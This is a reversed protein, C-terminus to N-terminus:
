REGNGNGDGDGDGDWDGHGDLGVMEGWMVDFARIDLDAHELRTEADCIGSVVKNGLGQDTWLQNLMPSVRSSGPRNLDEYLSWLRLWCSRMDRSANVRTELASVKTHADTLYQSSNALDHRMFAAAERLQERVMRQPGAVISSVMSAIRLDLDALDATVRDHRIKHRGLHATFAELDHTAQTPAEEIMNLQARGDQTDLYSLYVNLDPHDDDDVAQCREQDTNCQGTCISRNETRLQSPTSQSPATATYKSHSSTPSTLGIIKSSDHGAHFYDSFELGHARDNRSRSCGGAESDDDSSDDSIVIISSSRAKGEYIMECEKETEPKCTRSRSKKM